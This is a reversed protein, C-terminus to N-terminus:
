FFYISYVGSSSVSGMSIGPTQFYAEVIYCVQGDVLPTRGNATTQWNTSMYGQGATSLAAGGDTLYNTGTIYGQSDINTTTPDGLPSPHASVLGSNGFRIRRTFVFKNANTCSSVSSCQPDSTSGIYMVQSITIVGDGSTGTNTAKNTTGSGFAPMQFNMGSAMKQAVQQYFYSSFDAGHIFMDTLSRVLNNCSNYKVLNMGVVFTGLFTPVLFLAVLGFEIIEQGRQRRKRKASVKM